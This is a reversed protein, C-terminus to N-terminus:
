NTFVLGREAVRLAMKHCEISVSFNEGFLFFLLSKRTSLVIKIFKQASLVSKM